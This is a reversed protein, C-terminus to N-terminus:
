TSFGGTLFLHANIPALYVSGFGLILGTYIYISRCVPKGYSKLTIILVCWKGVLHLLLWFRSQRDIQDLNKLLGVLWQWLVDELRLGSRIQCCAWRPWCVHKVLVKMWAGQTPSWYRAYWLKVFNGLSLFSILWRLWLELYSLVNLVVFFFFYNATM